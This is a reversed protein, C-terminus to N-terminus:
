AVELSILKKNIIKSIGDFIYVLICTLVTVVLIYIIFVSVVNGKIGITDLLFIPLYQLCYIELSHTGWFRMVRNQPICASINAVIGMGGVSTCILSIPNGINNLWLDVNQNLLLLSINGVVFIALYFLVNKLGKIKEHLNEEKVYYGMLMYAVALIAVDFSWPLVKHILMAYTSGVIYFIIAGILIHYKTKIICKTVGWMILQAVFLCILFWAGFEYSGRMQVVIGVISEKVRIEYGCGLIMAIVMQGIKGIVGCLLLSPIVLSKIKKIVFQYFKEDKKTYTIGSLFFFMPLVFSGIIEKDLGISPIHLCIVLLAGIAKSNDVWEIRKGNM